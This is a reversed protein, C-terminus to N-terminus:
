IFGLEQIEKHLFQIEPPNLFSSMQSLIILWDTINKTTVTKCPLLYFLSHFNITFTLLIKNMM